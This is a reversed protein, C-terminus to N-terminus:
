ENVLIYLGAKRLDAVTAADAGPNTILTHVASLPAFQVYRDQGLKSSDALVITQDAHAMLSRTIAAEVESNDSLGNASLGDTGVFAKNARYRSIHEDAILGHVAQRVPDVEGGVLNIKVASGLLEAVVPLSNTIVRIPRQRILPCLRVVTSGCDMFIVDGDDILRAAIQCIHDKQETNAASKQVFSVPKPMLGAQMAGGHTRILLGDTALRTLDRRVTIESTQLAEAM